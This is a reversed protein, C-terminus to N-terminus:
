RSESDPRPDPSQVIEGEIVEGPGPRSRPGAGPRQRSSRGPGSVSGLLQGAVLSQLWVRTVPRTLPLVLFLGLADTLFGPTLLMAGGVLVLGADALEKAPPQGRGLVARLRAWTRRGERHVLLAGVVSLAILAGFTWWAGVARSVAIITMIELLPVLLLGALIYRGTRRRRPAAQSARASTM